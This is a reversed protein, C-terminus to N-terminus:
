AVPEKQFFRELAAQQDPSLHLGLKTRRWLIDEATMAWENEILHRVEAETLGHGFNVGCDALTRADGLFRAAMTGYTRILREAWAAELFSYRARLGAIQQAVDHM